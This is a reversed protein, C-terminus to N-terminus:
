KNLVYYYVGDTEFGNLELMYKHMSNKTDCSKTAKYESRHKGVVEETGDRNKRIVYFM